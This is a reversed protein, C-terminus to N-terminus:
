IYPTETLLPHQPSHEPKVCQIHLPSPAFLTVLLKMIPISGLINNQKYFLHLLSPRAHCRHSINIMFVQLFLCYNLVSPMFPLFINLFFSLFIHQPSTSVIWKNWCLAWHCTKTFITNHKPIGCFDLIAESFKYSGAESSPSQEM